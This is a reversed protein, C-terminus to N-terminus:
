VRHAKLVILLYQVQLPITPRCQLQMNTTQMRKAYQMYVILAHTVMNVEFGKRETLLFTEFKKGQIFRKAYYTGKKAM